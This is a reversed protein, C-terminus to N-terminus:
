VNARNYIDCIVTIYAPLGGERDLASAAHDLARDVIEAQSPNLLFSRRFHRQEGDPVMDFAQDWEDGTPPALAAAIGDLDESTYGTGDLDGGLRDLLEVLAANDYGDGLDATRNDALNIRRAEDDTCKLIECRATDHGEAAIADRTHNGALIVLQEGTDRVVLARYQGHRRISSRIAEVDGRRANGPFRTLERVPVDRTELWSVPV